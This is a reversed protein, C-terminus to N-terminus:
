KAPASTRRAVLRLGGRWPPRRLLRHVPREFLVYVLGAVAITFVIVVPIFLAGSFAGYGLASFWFYSLFVVSSNHTLYLSYSSDGLLRWLRIPHNRIWPELSVFGYVILAAPVGLQIARIDTGLLSGFAIVFGGLIVVLCAWANLLWGKEYAIAVNLGLFFEFLLPNVLFYEAENAPDLLLGIAFAAGFFVACAIYRLDHRLLLVLSFVVYFYMEYNLTWGQGLVPWTIEGFEGASHPIFLMSLLVHRYDIDFSVALGDKVAIIAVFLTVAWYLPGIRAVRKYFFDITSISSKRTISWMIFGSVVFFIDVGLDGKELMATFPEGFVADLKDHQVVHLWVVLLAAIGRLYQISIITEM